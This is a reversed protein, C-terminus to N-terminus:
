TEMRGGAALTHNSLRESRSSIAVFEVNFTYVTHVTYAHMRVGRYMYMRM